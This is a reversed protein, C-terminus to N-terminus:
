GIGISPGLECATHRNKYDQGCSTPNDLQLLRKFIGATTLPGSNQRMRCPQDGPASIKIVVRDATSFPNALVQQGVGHGINWEIHIGNNGLM